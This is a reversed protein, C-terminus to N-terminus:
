RPVMTKLAAAAQQFFGALEGFLLQLVSILGIAVLAIVMLYEVLGQGTEETALRRLTADPRSARGRRM